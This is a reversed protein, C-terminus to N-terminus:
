HPSEVFKAPSKVFTDRDMESCFYYHKGKYEVAPTSPGVTVKMGCVACVTKKGVDANPAVTLVKAVANDQAMSPRALPGVILVGIVLVAFIKSVGKVM